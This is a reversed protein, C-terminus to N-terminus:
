GPVLHGVELRYVCLDGGAPVILYAADVQLADLAVVRHARQGGPINFLRFRARGQALIETNVPVPEVLASLLAPGSSEIELGLAVAGDASDLRRPVRLGITVNEDGAEVCVRNGEVYEPRAGVVGFRDTTVLESAPGGGERAFRVARVSGDAEIHFLDGAEADFTARDDFLPVVESASNYPVLLYPVVDDPFVGDVLAADRGSRHLAALQREARDLIVRSRAGIWNEPVSIRWGGWISLGMYAAVGLAVVPRAVAPARDHDAAAGAPRGLVAAALALFFVTVSELNFYVTYALIEVTSPVVRTLGVVVTNVLFGVAFFVWARWAGRWRLITAAVVAVVLVQAAAVVTVAASRDVGRDIYVGFLNPVFVRTWLTGLYRFAVDLGGGDTLDTPYNSVYVWGLVGTVAGYLLWVWWDRYAARLSEGIPRERDLLLVTVAVLYVPVFIPKIYFLLGLGVAVLSAALWPWARSRYWRLYSWMALFSLITAPVRDLGSAWWQTVGVHVMSVGFALTFLYSGLGSGVLEVLILHFLVLSLAFGLLLQAQAPAFEFGFARQQIWDGLRHGPAFHGSTPELLYDLTLDDVQAQRLNKLDDWVFGSSSNLVALTVVPVLVVVGLAVVRGLPTLRIPTLPRDPRAPRHRRHPRTRRGVLGLGVWALAVLVAAVTTVAPRV